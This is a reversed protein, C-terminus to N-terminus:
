GATTLPEPDEGVGHAMGEAQHGESRGVLWVVAPAVSRTEARVDHFGAERLWRMAQETTPRNRYVEPDLRRPLPHEGARFALVLRGGPRLVRRIEALIREPSSWFYLTHVSVVGDISRPEVPLTTGDSLHLRVQGTTVYARNRRAAARLMTASTEVGIGLAKAAAIRRLTRGPGFGVELIREGPAPSLLALASDNVTATELLWLWSLLRGVPGHPRRAQSSIYRRLM